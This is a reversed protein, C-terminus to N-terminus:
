ATGTPLPVTDVTGMQGRALLDLLEARTALYDPDSWLNRFEFPDQQLDFLEGESLDQWLSLRWRQTVLTHVRPVKGTLPLIRQHDYEILVHSRGAAQGGIQPVFSEGQMGEYPALGARELISPALDITSVLSEVVRGGMSSEVAPDQWILPVRVLGQYPAPGKLLVRHDGLYDGHDSTFIKVVNGLSSKASEQLVRGIAHDIMTISGCTLAQAERAEQESVAFPAHGEVKATGAAREHILHSVYRSPAWDASSFAQLPPMDNAGYMDWYKGPPTFPHHPDPFSVVLFFPRDSGSAARTRLFDVAREAICTTSYAEEPVATRWAQPCSAVHPLAHHRGAVEAPDIGKAQAWATYDGAALDGHGIVIDATDFGYYDTAPSHTAANWRSPTEVDYNGSPRRKAQALPSPPKRLSDPVRAGRWIPKEGAFNQHHAKGIHVTDYGAARLLEVFTVNEHDLPIGNSRVGHVSPMRGTLLSARNPMCVPSAVYSREFRVGSAALGDLSPTRVVPHGYCGLYDARHQDTLFLIFSAPPTTM